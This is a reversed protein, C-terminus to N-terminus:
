GDFAETSIDSGVEHSVSMVCSLISQKQPHREQRLNVYEGRFESMLIRCQMFAAATLVEHAGALTKRVRPM